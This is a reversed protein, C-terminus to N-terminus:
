AEVRSLRASAPGKAGEPEDAVKFNLEILVGDPDRVFLQWIGFATIANESVRLGAAELRAKMADFDRANLALHDVAAGGHCPEGNEDLAAYGGMLHFMTEGMQLWAGPFDFAPREVRQMGLVDAYFAESAAVDSTRIAVHHLDVLPM